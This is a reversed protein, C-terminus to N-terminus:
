FRLTTVVPAGQFDWSFKKLPSSVTRHRIITVAVDGDRQWFEGFEVCFHVKRYISIYPCPSGVSLNSFPGSTILLQIWCFCSIFPPSQILSIESTSNLVPGADSSPAEATCVLLGPSPGWPLDAELAARGCRHSFQASFPEPAPAKDPRITIDDLCLLRPFLPNLSSASSDVQPYKSNPVNIDGLNREKTKLFKFVFSNPKPVSLLREAFVM